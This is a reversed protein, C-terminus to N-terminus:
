ACSFGLALSPSFSTIEWGFPMLACDRTTWKSSGKAGCMGTDTLNTDARQACLVFRGRGRQGCPPKGAQGPSRLLPLCKHPLCSLPHCSPQGLPVLFGESNMQVNACGCRCMALKYCSKWVSLHQMKCSDIRCDRCSCPRHPAPKTPAHGDLKGRLHPWM